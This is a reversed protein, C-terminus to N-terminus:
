HPTKESIQNESKSIEERLYANIIQIYKGKVGQSKAKIVGAGELKKLASTVTSQASYSEAAIVNLFINGENEPLADLVVNVAKRESFTLFNVALHAAAIELSRQQIRDQEQRIMELSIIARTYECLINDTETFDQGYRIMLMGAVKRFNSYIPYVSFYRDNFLCREVNPYTCIPAAEFQGQVCTENERFLEMYYEPLQRAQLSCESYPCAFQEVISYAFIHGNEDFIYINCGVINCLQACLANLPTLALASQSFVSNLDRIKDILSKM